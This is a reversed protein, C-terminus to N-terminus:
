ARAPDARGRGAGPGGAEGAAGVPRARPRASSQVRETIERDQSSVRDLFEARELLEGFGDSELVVTIADPEDAKYIEVLRQALVKRAGALESRLRELRDRAVELRNRVRLLENRKDDLSEQARGLRTQTANIEGQLGDIRTSLGSITTTLM